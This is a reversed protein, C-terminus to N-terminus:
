RKEMILERSVFLQFLKIPRPLGQRLVLARYQGSLLWLRSLSRRRIRMRLANALEFGSIRTARIGLRELESTFEHYSGRDVGVMYEDASMLVIVRYRSFLKILARARTLAEEFSSDFTYPTSLVRLGVIERGNVEIGELGVRVSEVPDGNNIFLRVWVRLGILDKILILLILTNIVILYARHDIVYTAIAIVIAIILRIRM